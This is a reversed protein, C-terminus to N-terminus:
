RYFPYRGTHRGWTSTKTQSPSRYLTQWNGFRLFKTTTKLPNDDYVDVPKGDLRFGSVILAVRTRNRRHYVLWINNITQAGFVEGPFLNNITSCLKM